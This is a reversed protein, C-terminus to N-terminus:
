VRKDSSFKPCHAASETHFIPFEDAYKVAIRDHYM